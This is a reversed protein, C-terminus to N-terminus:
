ATRLSADFPSGLQIAAEFGESVLDVCRDVLLLEVQVQPYRDLYNAVM